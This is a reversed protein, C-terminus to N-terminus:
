EISRALATGLLFVHHRRDSLELLKRRKRCYEGLAAGRLTKPLFGPSFGSQLRLLFGKFEKRFNL